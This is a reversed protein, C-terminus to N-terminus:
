DKTGSSGVRWYVAFLLFTHVDEIYINVVRIPRHPRHVFFLTIGIYITTIEKKSLPQRFIVNSTIVSTWLPLCGNTLRYCGVGGLGIRHCREQGLRVGSSGVYGVVGSGDCRM